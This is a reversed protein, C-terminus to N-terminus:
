RLWNILEIFNEYYNLHKGLYYSLPYFDPFFCKLAIQSASIKKEGEIEESEKWIKTKADCKVQALVAAQVAM